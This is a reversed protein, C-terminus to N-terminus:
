PAACVDGRVSLRLPISMPKTGRPVGTRDRDPSATIIKESNTQTRSQLPWIGHCRILLAGLTSQVYFFLRHQRNPVIENCCMNVDLDIAETSHCVCCSSNGNNVQVRAYWFCAAQLPCKLRALLCGLLKGICFAKIKPHWYMDCRYLVDNPVCSQVYLFSKIRGWSIM